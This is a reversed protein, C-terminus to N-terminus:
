ANTKKTFMERASRFKLLAPKVWRSEFAQKFANFTARENPELKEVWDAAQDICMAKILRLKDADAVIPKFELYNQFRRWFETADEDARGSFPAPCLMREESFMNVALFFMQANAPAQAALPQQAPPIPGQGAPPAIPAGVAAPQPPQQQVIPQAAAGQGDQQGPLPNANMPDLVQPCALIIETELQELEELDAKNAAILYEGLDSFNAEESSESEPSSIHTRYERYEPYSSTITIQSDSFPRNIQAKERSITKRDQKIDPRDHFQFFVEPESDSDSKGPRELELSKRSPIHFFKNSIKDSRLKRKQKCIEASSVSECKREDALGSTTAHVSHM